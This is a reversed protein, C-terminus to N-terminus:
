FSRQDYGHPTIDPPKFSKKKLKAVSAVKLFLSGGMITIDAATDVIRIAPVSQIMVRACQPKSGTDSVWVTCVDEDSDSSYLFNFPDQDQNENQTPTSESPYSVESTGVIWRAASQRGQSEEKKANCKNALHDPSSCNFCRQLLTKMPLRSTKTRTSQDPMGGTHTVTGAYQQRKALESQRCEQSSFMIRFIDSLWISRHKWLATSWARKFKLMYYLMAHRRMWKTM